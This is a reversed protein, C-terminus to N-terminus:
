SQGETAPASSRAPYEEELPLNSAAAIENPKSFFFTRIAVLLFITLFIILGVEAYSQLGMSSMIDSLRM